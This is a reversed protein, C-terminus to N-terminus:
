NALNAAVEIPRGDILSSTLNVTTTGWDTALDIRVPILVTLSPQALKVPALWVPHYPSPSTKERALEEPAHGAIPTHKVLCKYAPGKYHGGRDLKVARDFKFTLDYIRRGDFVRQAGTCPRDARFLSTSILASLPDPMDPELTQRIAEMREPKNGPLASIRFKHGEWDVAVAGRGRSTTVDARYSLPKLGSGTIRGESKTDWQSAMVIGAIGETKIQSTARYRSPTLEIAFNASLLPFGIGSVTYGLDIKQNLARRAADALRDEAAAAFPALSLGALLAVALGARNLRGRM